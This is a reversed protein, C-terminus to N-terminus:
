IDIGLRRHLTALLEKADARIHIFEDVGCQKHVEIQDQPYGALLIIAEPRVARIAKALPPVLSPYKDDTSCIVALRAKSNAFADAAEQVEKFGPPSVIDYGAVGLFGRSFDARAKHERLPGLNLLFARPRDHGAVVYRETASRLQEL